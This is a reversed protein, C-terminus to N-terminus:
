QTKYRGSFNYGSFFWFTYPDFLGQDETEDKKILSYAFHINLCARLM